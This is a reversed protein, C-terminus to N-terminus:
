RAVGFPPGGVNDITWIEGILNVVYATNGIFQFSTPMNLGEVVTTFTGDGNVQMLAGTNPLAPSGEFAGDWEGQALGFLSNGLGFKVDVLLPAGTAVVTYDSSNPSFAIIRGDEPLHPIPGAEGMYVTNGRIELGTPVTNGFERLVSIEGDRTVHLVRNLHGDTVLFGGRYTQITYLVGTPIFYDFEITPPNAINFEGIDAIITYSDPGDIRYIGVVDSGGVDPGVLMVLAYATGGIFAVDVPGGIPFIATPLGSAFTTVEGTKPDVRSIRGAAGEPIYLAGGPGIASGLTGALGSV